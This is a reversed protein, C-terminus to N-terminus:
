YYYHNRIKETYIYFCRSQKAGERPVIVHNSEPHMVSGFCILPARSWVRYLNAFILEYQIGTIRDRCCPAALLLLGMTRLDFGQHRSKINAQSQQILEEYNPM